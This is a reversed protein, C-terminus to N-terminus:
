LGDERSRSYLGKQELMMQVEEPLRGQVNVAYVGPSLHDIRQWLAVWSEESPQVSGIIGSFATTTCEYVRDVSGKM